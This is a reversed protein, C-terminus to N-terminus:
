PECGFTPCDRPLLAMLAVKDASPAILFGGIDVGPRDAVLMPGAVNGNAELAVRWLRTRVEVDEDLHDDSLFYLFDDKAFALGYADLRLDLAVPKAGEKTLDLLYHTPTREFTEPNTTTVSYVAYNGNATVTPSGLRPATILDLASMPKASLGPITDATDEHGDALAPSAIAGLIFALSAGIPRMKQLIMM